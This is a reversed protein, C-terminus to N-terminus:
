EEEILRFPQVEDFTVINNNKLTETSISRVSMEQRTGKDVLITATIGITNDPIQLIINKM